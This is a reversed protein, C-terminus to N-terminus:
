MVRPRDLCLTRIAGTRAMGRARLWRSGPLPSAGPSRRWARLAARRQGEACTNCREYLERAFRRCESTVSSPSSQTSFFNRSAPFPGAATRSSVGAGRGKLFQERCRRSTTGSSAGTYRRPPAIQCLPARGGARGGGAWRGDEGARASRAAGVGAGMQRAAAGGAWGRGWSEGEVVHEFLWPFSAAGHSFAACLFLLERGPNALAPRASLPTPRSHPSVAPIPVPRSPGPLADQGGSM